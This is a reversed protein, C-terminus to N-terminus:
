SCLFPGDSKSGGNYVMQFATSHCCCYFYLQVSFCVINQSYRFWMWISIMDTFNFDCIIRFPHSVLSLVNKLLLISFLRTECNSDQVKIHVIDINCRHKASTIYVQILCFMFLYFYHPMARCKLIQFTKSFMYPVWSLKTYCQCRHLDICADDTEMLTM